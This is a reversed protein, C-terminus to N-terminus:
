WNRVASRVRDDCWGILAATWSWGPRNKVLVHPGRHIGFSLLYMQCVDEGPCPSRYFIVTSRPTGDGLARCGPRVHEWGWKTPVPVGRRCSRRSGRIARPSTRMPSWPAAGRPRRRRCRFPRTARDRPKTGSHCLGTATLQVLVEDPGPPDLERHGRSEAKRRPGPVKRCTDEMHLTALTLTETATTSSKALTEIISTVTASSAPVKKDFKGTSTLPIDTVFGGNLLVKVEGSIRDAGGRHRYPRCGPRGGGAAVVPRRASWDGHRHAGCPSCGVREGIGVSSIWEGRVIVDQATLRSTRTRASRGVDRYAVVRGAVCQM